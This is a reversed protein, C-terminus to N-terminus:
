DVVELDVSWWTTREELPRKVGPGIAHKRIQYTGPELRHPVRWGWSASGNFGIDEAGGRPPWMTKLRTDDNWGSLWAALEFTGDEHVRWVESIVGWTRRKPPDFAVRIMDGGAVETDSVCLVDCDEVLPPHSYSPAPSASPLVPSASPRASDDGEDATCGVLLGALLFAAAVGASARPGRRVRHM